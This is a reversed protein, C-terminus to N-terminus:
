GLDGQYNPFMKQVENDENITYTASYLDIKRKMFM